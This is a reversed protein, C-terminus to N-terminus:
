KGLPARRRLEDFFNQVFGITHERSSGERAVAPVIVALRKGDPAVEFATVGTVNDAWLRPKEAVFSGGSTTYGVAMIKGGALYLLERGNPLWLPAAGGSNSIQLKGENGSSTTSFPRVYVEFTGSENSQYAIWRGDPSFTPELDQSQTTLFRTRTGAKLIGSELEVEVSWIQPMPDIAVTALRKGDPTFSSPWEFSKSLPQPQGAGDARTSFMGVGMLAFLVYRGDRSWVPNIFDGGGRTLRTMGDRQPDYVWIDQNSGDRIAIAVRRGDPSLRPASAYVAPRALLAEQRGARDLWQVKTAAFAAGANKRYVLTGGRSVDFQAGGSIPDLAADGFIPVAAGRTELKEIDFPVAFLGARTAYMVHGSPLYRPSTAGRVLTKHRGDDMSVIDITTTELSPPTHIVSTLVGKHGPLIQPFNFFLEGSAINVIPEPKGGGSAVRVLGAPTPQGNLRLGLGAAVVLSGDDTWSGGGMVNLDALPIVAGGALAAKELRGNNWFAVWQGDPSFFPMVAGQTGALEVITPDDLRRAFLAPVGGAVSGAFVVRTGDPSIVLSSFTPAMMPSLAVDTGLDVDFKVGPPPADPPTRRWPAWLAIAAVVAFAAAAIWGVSESRSATAPPKSTEDLLKWVDGIDRLRKRPEKQLCNELLRRVNAPVTDLHPESQIVAALITSVDEGEFARRGTLMEYFVVGFAWIDARKDVVKGRAQEPAMYAATGLIMGVQTMAPTTLTPSM